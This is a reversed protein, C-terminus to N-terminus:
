RIARATRCTPERTAATLPRARLRQNELRHPLPVTPLDRTQRVRATLRQRFRWDSAGRPRGGCADHGHCAGGIAHAIEYLLADQIDSWTAPPVFSVSLDVQQVTAGGTPGAKILRLGAYRARWRGSEGSAVIVEHRRLETVTGFVTRRHRDLVHRRERRPVTARPPPHRDTTRAEDDFAYRRATTPTAAQETASATLARRNRHALGRRRSAADRGRRRPRPSAREPRPAAAHDRRARVLRRRSAPDAPQRHSAVTRAPRRRRRRPTSTSPNCHAKGRM